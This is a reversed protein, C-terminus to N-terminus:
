TTSITAGSGGKLIGYLTATSNQIFNTVAADSLTISTIGTTLALRQGTFSSMGNGFYNHGDEVLLMKEVSSTYDYIRITTNSFINATGSGGTFGVNNDTTTEITPTASAGSTLTRRNRSPSGNFQLNLAFSENGGNSTRLSLVLMLDTFTQPISSFVITSATAGVTTTAIRQYTM